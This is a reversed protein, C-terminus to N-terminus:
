KVLNCVTECTHHNISVLTPVFSDVGFLRSPLMAAHLCLKARLKQMHSDNCATPDVCPSPKCRRACTEGPLQMAGLIQWSWRQRSMPCCSTSLM